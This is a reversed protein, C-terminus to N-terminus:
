AVALVNHGLYGSASGGDLYEGLVHIDGNVDLGSELVTFVEGDLDSLFLTNPAYTIGSVVKPMRAWDESIIKLALRTDLM